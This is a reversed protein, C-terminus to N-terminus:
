QTFGAIQSLPASPTRAKQVPLGWPQSGRFWEEAVKSQEVRFSPAGGIHKPKRLTGTGRSRNKTCAFHASSTAPSPHERASSGKSALRVGGAVQGLSHVHGPLTLHPRTCRAAAQAGTEPRQLGPGQKTIAFRSTHATEWPVITACRSASDDNFASLRLCGSHESQRSIVISLQLHRIRLNVWRPRM